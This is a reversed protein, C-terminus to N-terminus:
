LENGQSEYCYGWISDFGRASRLCNQMSGLDAFGSLFRTEPYEIEMPGLQPGM